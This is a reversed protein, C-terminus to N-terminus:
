QLPFSQTEISRRCNSGKQRLFPHPLTQVLAQKCPHSPRPSSSRGLSGLGVLFPCHDETQQIPLDAQLLGQGCPGLLCCHQLRHVRLFSTGPLVPVGRGGSKIPLSQLGTCQGGPPVPSGAWHGQDRLVGSKWLLTSLAVSAPFGLIQANAMTRTRGNSLIDEWRIWSPRKPALSLAWWCGVLHPCGEEEGWWALQGVRRLSVRNAGSM